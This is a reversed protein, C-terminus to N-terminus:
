DDDLDLSVAFVWRSPEPGALRLVRGLELSWTRGAAWRVTGRAFHTTDRVYREALLTWRPLFAWEVAVGSRASDEEGSRAFQRGLNFHLQLDERLPYSALGVLSASERRPRQHAEWDALVLVGLRWDGVPRSWKVEATWGTASSGDERGYEAQGGLQVPGVRCTLEVEAARAGGQLRDLTLEAECDGRALMEASEIGHREAHASTAALLAAALAVGLNTRTARM